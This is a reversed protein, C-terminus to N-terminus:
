SNIEDLISQLKAIVAAHSANQKMGLHNAWAKRMSCRSHKMGLSELKIAHKAAILQFVSANINGM